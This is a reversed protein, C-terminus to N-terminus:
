RSRSHSQVWAERIHRQHGIAMECPPSGSSSGLSIFRSFENRRSAPSAALFPDTLDIDFPEYMIPVQGNFGYYQPQDPRPFSGDAPEPIAPDFVPTGDALIQSRNEMKKYFQILNSTPLTADFDPLGLDVWQQWNFPPNRQNVSGNHATCGGWGSYRHYPPVVYLIPDM